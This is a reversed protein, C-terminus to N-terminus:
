DAQNNGNTEGQAGVGAPEPTLRDHRAKVTTLGWLYLGLLAGVVLVQWLGLGTLFLVLVALGIGGLRLLDYRAVVWRDLPSGEPGQATIRDWGETARRLWRPPGALYAGIAVVVAALTVWRILNRLGSFVQGFIVRAAREGNPNTIEALIASEVRRLLLLAIVFAIAVGVGLQIGTRRRAPSVAITGAALLVTLILLGWVLRDLTVAATQLETLSDESMITVQGFDEPLEARIAEALQERSEELRDSIVDPLDFDPLLQSIEDGVSRLAEVVLPITNWRVEGSEIYVNPVEATEGRILAITVEHAREVVGPLRTVLAESEFFAHIARDVRRELGEVIPPALATLPPRDFRDLLERATEDLDLADLLAESLFADLNALASTVRTELDLAELTEASARDGLATYFVPDDLVPGVSAMFRETDFVTQHAWVAITTAVMSITTLVVLLATLVRRWSMRRDLATRLAQNEALLRDVDSPAPEEQNTV